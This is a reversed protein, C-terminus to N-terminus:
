VLDHSVPRTWVRGSRTVNVATTAIEVVMHRDAVARMGTSRRTTVVWQRPGVQLADVVVDEFMAEIFKNNM